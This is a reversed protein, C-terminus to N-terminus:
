IRKLKSNMMDPIRLVDYKPFSRMDAHNVKLQEGFLFSLFSKRKIYKTGTNQVQSHYAKVQFNRLYIM